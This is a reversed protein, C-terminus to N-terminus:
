FEDLNYDDKELEDSGTYFSDDGPLDIAEQCSIAMMQLDALMDFGDVEADRCFDFLPDEFWSM